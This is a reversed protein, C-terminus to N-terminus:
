PLTQRLVSAKRSAPDFTIVYWTRRALVGTVPARLSEGPDELYVAPARKWDPANMNMERGLGVPLYVVSNRDTIQLAVDRVAAYPAVIDSARKAYLAAHVGYVSLCILLASGVARAGARSRSEVLLVLGRGALLCLAFYTEYYYREGFGSQGGFKTVSYGAVVSLFLAALVWASVRHDRDALLTYAALPFLFPFGYVVTSQISWRTFMGLSELLEFPHAVFIQSTSSLSSYSSVRGHAYLSYGIYGGLAILSLAATLILFRVLIGRKRAEALLLVGL